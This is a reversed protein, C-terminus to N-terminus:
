RTVSIARASLRWAQRARLRGGLWAAPVMMVIGTIWFWLPEDSRVSFMASVTVAAQIAGMVTAHVVQSNAAIRATVYGAAVMSLTEWILWFVRTANSHNVISATDPLGPSMRLLVATGAGQMAYLEVSLTIFGALVAVISRM